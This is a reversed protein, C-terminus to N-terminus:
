VMEEEEGGKGLRPPPPSPRRAPLVRARERARYKRIIMAATTSIASMVVMATIWLPEYENTEVMCDVVVPVVTSNEM